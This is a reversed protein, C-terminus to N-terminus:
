KRGRGDLGKAVPKDVLPEGDTQREVHLVHQHDARVHAEGELGVADKGDILGGDAEGGCVVVGAVM